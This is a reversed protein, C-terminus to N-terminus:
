GLSLNIVRVNYRSKVKVAQQLAALVASDTAAGQADLVRLDLLNANPAIGKFTHFAGPMSSSRGNGAAIGAVHTGHGYDDFQSGAVFSQRYVIRSATGTANNLDPHSYIGSDIIAIGVGSGDLGPSWAAPANVAAPTEDVLGSVRRTSRFTSLM